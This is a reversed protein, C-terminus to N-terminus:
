LLSECVVKLYLEVFASAEPEESLHRHQQSFERTSFSISIVFWTCIGSGTELLMQTWGSSKTLLASLHNFVVMFICTEQVQAAEAAEARTSDPSSGPGKPVHGKSSGPTEWQWGVSCPTVFGTDCCLEHKTQEAGNPSGWHQEQNNVAGEM